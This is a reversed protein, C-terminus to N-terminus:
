CYYEDVLLSYLRHLNLRGVKHYPIELIQDCSNVDCGYTLLLETTM